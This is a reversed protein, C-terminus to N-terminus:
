QPWRASNGLVLVTADCDASLAAALELCHEEHALAEQVSFGFGEIVGFRLYIFIHIYTHIYIYINFLYILIIYLYIYIYTYLNTPKPNVSRPTDQKTVILAADGHVAQVSSSRSAM